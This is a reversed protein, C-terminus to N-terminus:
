SHANKRNQDLLPFVALWLISLIGFLSHYSCFLLLQRKKGTKAIIGTHTRIFRASETRMAAEDVTKFPLPPDAIFGRRNPDGPRSQVPSLLRGDAALDSRPHDEEAATRKVAGIALVALDRGSVAVPHFDADLLQAGQHEGELSHPRLGEIQHRSGM